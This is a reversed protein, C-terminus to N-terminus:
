EPLRDIAQEVLRDFRDDHGDGMAVCELLDPRELRGDGHDDDLPHTGPLPHRHTDVLLRTSAQRHLMQEVEAVTMDGM